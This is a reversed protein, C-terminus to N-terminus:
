FEQPCGEPLPPDSFIRSRPEPLKPLDQELQDHATKLRVVAADREPGIPVTFNFELLVCGDGLVAQLEDSQVNKFIAVRLHESTLGSSTEVYGLRTLTPSIDALVNTHSPNFIYLGFTPLRDDGSATDAAALVLLAIIPKLYRKLM